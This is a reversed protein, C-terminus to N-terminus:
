YGFMCQMQFHRKIRKIYFLGGIKRMVKVQKLTCALKKNTQKTFHEM